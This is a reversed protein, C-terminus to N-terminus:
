EAADCKDCLRDDQLNRRWCTGCMPRQCENCHRDQCAECSYEEFGVCSENCCLPTVDFHEACYHSACNPCIQDNFEDIERQTLPTALCRHNACRLFFREIHQLVSTSEEEDVLWQFLEITTKVDLDKIRESVGDVDVVRKRKRTSDTM